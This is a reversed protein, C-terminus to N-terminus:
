VIRYMEFEFTREMQGCEDGKWSGAICDAKLLFSDIYLSDNIGKKVSSFFFFLKTSDLAGFM